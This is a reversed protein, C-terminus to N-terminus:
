FTAILELTTKTDSTSGDDTSTNDLAVTLNDSAAYSVFITNQTLDDLGTNSKYSLTDARGKIGFGNGFDYSLIVSYVNDVQQAAPLTTEPDAQLYDLGVGFGNMTYMGNLDILDGAGQDEGLFTFELSLNEMPMGSVMLGVSSKKDASAATSPDNAVIVSVDAPGAKGSISLGTLNAADVGALVQFPLSNNSTQMDPADGEDATIHSNFSGGMLSWGNGFDYTFNAQEVNFDGSGSVNDLDVRVGSGMFDVETEPVTFNSENAPTADDTMTYFTDVFGSVAVGEAQAAMPAALAGAVALAILKKNM